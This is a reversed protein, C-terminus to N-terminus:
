KLSFSTIKVEWFYHKYGKKKRYRTKPRYKLVTIKKKRERLITGKVEVNNLYPSGILINKDDAYLLVREFTLDKDTKLLGKQTRPIKIQSNEEVLYQKGGVDLVALKM